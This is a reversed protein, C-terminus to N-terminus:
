EKGIDRYGALEKAVWFVPEESKIEEDTVDEPFDPDTDGLYIDLANFMERVKKDPIEM